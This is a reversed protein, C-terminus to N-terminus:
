TFPSYRLIPGTESTVWTSQYVFEEKSRSTQLVRCLSSEITRLPVRSGSFWLSICQSQSSDWFYNSLMQIQLLSKQSMTLQSLWLSFAFCIFIEWMGAPQTLHQRQAQFRLLNTLVTKNFANLPNMMASNCLLHWSLGTSLICCTIVRHWSWALQPIM